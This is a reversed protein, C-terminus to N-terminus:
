SLGDRAAMRELEDVLVKELNASDQDEEGDMRQLVAAVLLQAARRKGILTGDSLILRFKYPTNIYDLTQERGELLITMGAKRLTSIASNAFLIVEGQIQEAVPTM